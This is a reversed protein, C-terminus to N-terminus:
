EGYPYKGIMESWSSGANGRCTSIIGEISTAGGGPRHVVRQYEGRRV